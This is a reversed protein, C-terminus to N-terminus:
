IQFIGDMFEKLDILKDGNKDCSKIIDEIVESKLNENHEEYNM